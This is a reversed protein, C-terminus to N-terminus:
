DDAYLSYGRVILENRLENDKPNTSLLVKFIDKQTMSDILNDFYRGREKSEKIVNDWYEKGILKKESLYDRIYGYLSPNDYLVGNDRAIRKALYQMLAERKFSSDILQELLRPQYQCHEYLYDSLKPLIACKFKKDLQAKLAKARKVNNKYM